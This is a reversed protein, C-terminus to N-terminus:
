KISYTNDYRYANITHKITYIIFVQEDLKNQIFTDPQLNSSLIKFKLRKKFTVIALTVQDNKYM